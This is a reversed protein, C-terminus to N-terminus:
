GKSILALIKTPNFGRVVEGDILLIPIGKEGIREYQAAGEPSKEIDYEYYEINKESLFDRAKACYSCWETAYLIIKGEHMKNYNSVPDTIDDWKQFIALAILIAIIIKM